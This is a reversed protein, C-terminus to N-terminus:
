HCDQVNYHQLASQTGTVKEFQVNNECIHKYKVSSIRWVKRGKLALGVFYYFLHLKFDALFFSKSINRGLVAILGWTGEIGASLM